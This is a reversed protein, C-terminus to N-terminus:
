PEAPPRSKGNPGQSIIRGSRVDFQLYSEYQGEWGSDPPQTWNGQGVVLQGTYWTAPVAGDAPFTEEAEPPFLADLPIVYEPQITGPSEHGRNDLAILYLTDGRIEWTGRYGRGLATSAGRRLFPKIRAFAKADKMWQHLPQDLLAHRTGNVIIWEPIQSTAFAPTAVGLVVAAVLGRLHIGIM